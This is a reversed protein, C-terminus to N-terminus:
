VPVAKAQVALIGEQLERMSYPKSLIHFEAQLAESDDRSFGTALLVRIRPYRARLQRALGIGDMSGPMVIDSLVIAPKFKGSVLMELAEDASEATAVQYGLQELLARSGDAVAKNDDVVLVSGGRGSSTVPQTDDSHVGLGPAAAPLIIQVTTGKGLESTIRATGGQRNAFGYVQALGLGTGKGAQKTTFFPDFVHPLVDPPIGTGADTVSLEAYLGHPLQYPNEPPLRLRSAHVRVVGSEPMADRANVILNLMAAELESPNVLIPPAGDAVVLQVDIRAGITARAFDVCDPLLRQLDVLKPQYSRRGSFSLLHQILSQVRRVGRRIVSFDEDINQGRLKHQLLEIRMNVVQLFNNFDHAIGGALQGVVEMKQAQVLMMETAERKQIEAQLYQTQRALSAVSSVLTQQLRAIRELLLVLVVTGGMVYSARAAYWGATYRAGGLTSLVIGGLMALLPVSLWSFLSVHTNRNWILVAIGGAVVAAMAWTIGNSLHMFRDGALFYHPLPLYAAAAYLLAVAAAACYMAPALRLAAAPSSEHPQRAQRAIAAVTLGVFGTQWAMYLWAVTETRGALAIDPLLAGPFTLLHLCAMAASYAYAVALLRLPRGPHSKFEFGLLLATLGHLIVMGVAYIASIHPLKPGQVQAYPVLVAVLVLYGIFIAALLGLERKSVARHVLLGSQLLVNM